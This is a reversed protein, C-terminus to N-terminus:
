TYLISENMTKKREESCGDDAVCGLLVVKKNDYFIFNEMMANM